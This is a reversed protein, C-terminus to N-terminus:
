ERADTLLDDDIEKFAVGVLREDGAADVVVALHRGVGQGGVLGLGADFRAAAFAALGGVEVFETKLVLLTLFLNIDM